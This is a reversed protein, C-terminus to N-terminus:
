LKLSNNQFTSLPKIVQAGFYLSKGSLVGPNSVGKRKHQFNFWFFLLGTLCFWDMKGLDEIKISNAYPCFKPKM